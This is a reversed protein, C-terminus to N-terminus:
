QFHDGLNGADLVMFMAEPGRTWTSNGFYALTSVPNNKPGWFILMIYTIKEGHFSIRLKEPNGQKFPM